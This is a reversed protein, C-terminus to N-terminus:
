FTERVSEHENIMKILIKKNKKTLKNLIKIQNSNREDYNIKRPCNQKRIIKSTEKSIKLKFKKCIKKLNEHPNLVFDDYKMLIINKKLNSKKYNKKFITLLNSLMCVIKDENTKSLRLDKEVGLFYFPITKNKSEYMLVTNRKSKFIEGYYKKRMWSCILDVPHRSINLIKPSLFTSEILNLNFLAEHFIIPFYQTKYLNNSDKIRIINKSRRAYLAKKNGFLNISSFDDKKTNLNRGDLKDQIQENIARRILIKSIKFDVKNLSNLIILNESVTSFFFQECNLLSSIIPSFIVKGSRSVGSILIINKSILKSDNLKIKM